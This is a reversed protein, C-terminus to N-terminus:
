SVSAVVSEISGKLDGIDITSFDGTENFEEIAAAIVLKADDIIDHEEVFDNFTQLTLSQFGKRAGDLDLRSISALIEPLVEDATRVEVDLDDNGTNNVASTPIIEKTRDFPKIKPNDKVEVDVYELFRAQGQEIRFNASAIPVTIEQGVKYIQKYRGGDSKARTAITKKVFKIRAHKETKM